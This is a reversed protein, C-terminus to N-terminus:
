KNFPLSHKEIVVIIEAATPFERAKRSAIGDSITTAIMNIM